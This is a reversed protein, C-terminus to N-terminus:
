WTINKAGTILGHNALRLFSLRSLRINKTLSSKRSTLVCRNNIKVISSENLSSSLKGLAKLKISSKKFDSKLFSKKILNNLELKKFCVRIKKDKRSLKKM